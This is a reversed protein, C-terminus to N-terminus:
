EVTGIQHPNTNVVKIQLVEIKVEVINITSSYETVEIFNFTSSNDAVEILYITCSYDIVEILYFISLARTMNKVKSLLYFGKIKAENKYTGM